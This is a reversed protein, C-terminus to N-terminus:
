ESRLVEVPRLRAAQVGIAAGLALVVLLALTPVALVTIWPVSVVDVAGVGDAIRKWIVRGAVLGVAIGIAVGAAATVVGQWAVTARAQRPTFGLARAVAIDAPRRDLAVLLAHVIGALGLAALAIALLLPVSGIRDLNAIRSPAVPEQWGLAALRERVGADVDGTRVFAGTLTPDRGLDLRSLGEVTLVVSRDTHNDDSIRGIGAVRYGVGGPDLRVDDGVDAGITTALGDGLLAEDPGLPPRGRAVFPAITGIADEFAMPQALGNGTPGTVEADNGPVAYKFSFAEVPENMTAAIVMDPDEPSDLIELDWDAAFASPTALVEATSSEVLDVALFGGVGLAVGAVASVVALRSRDGTPDVALSTGLGAPPTPRWAMRSTAPLRQAVAATRVTRWAIGFAVAALVAILVVVGVTVAAPDIRIGPSPEARRALGRPFLPSMLVAGVTAAVVGVALAPTMVLVEARVIARRTAGLAALADVTSRRSGMQRAITQLAAVLTAVAAVAAAIWLAGVELGIAHRVTASSELDYQGVVIPLDGIVEPISAIIGDVDEPAANLVIVCDCMAIDDRYAARFESSFWSVAETRYAVDEPGRSIGVVEVDIVPGRDEISDDYLFADMQDAAFSRVQIVDGVDVGILDAAGENIVVEDAGGAPEGRVLNPAPPEDGLADGFVGSFFTLPVGDAQLAVGAWAIPRAGIVGPIGMLAEPLGQWMRAQVAPDVGEDLSLQIPAGERALLRDFASDARRAGAAAAITAAGGLGVVAALMLMSRWSRRWESRIWPFLAGM